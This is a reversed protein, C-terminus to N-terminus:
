GAPWKQLLGRERWGTGGIGEWRRSGAAVAGEGEGGAEPAAGVGRGSASRRSEEAVALERPLDVGGEGSGRREREVGAAGRRM